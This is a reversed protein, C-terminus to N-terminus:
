HPPATLSGTGRRIDELYRELLGEIGRKGGITDDYFIVRYGSIDFPLKEIQRNALFITPKQLAHAYGLEYFVNANLPTIDAVIVDSEIIGRIIDQLIVGPRFVDDARFATFGLRDAVPQIVETYLSDYPGGFQMVVFIRPETGSIHFKEFTVESAGGAFLGVQDGQLPSPLAAELVQVGDVSLSVRQGAVEVELHYLIGTRLQSEAGIARITRWGRGPVFENIMYASGSGGIGISYYSGTATHYGVVVRAIGKSDKITAEVVLLGSRFRTPVLCIGVPDEREESGLYTANTGDIRWRGAILVFNM